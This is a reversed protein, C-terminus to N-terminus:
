SGAPPDLCLEAALILVTHPSCQTVQYIPNLGTNVGTNVGTNDKKDLPGNYIRLLAKVKLTDILIVSLFTELFIQNISKLHLIKNSVIALYKM